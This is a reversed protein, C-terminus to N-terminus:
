NFLKSKEKEVEQKYLFKERTKLANWFEKNEDIETLNDMIEDFLLGWDKEGEAYVYAIQKLRGSDLLYTIKDASLKKMRDYIQIAYQIPMGVKELSKYYNTIYQEAQFSKSARQKLSEIQVKIALEGKIRITTNGVKRTIGNKMIDEYDLRKFMTKIVSEDTVGRALKFAQEHMLRNKLQRKYYNFQQRLTGSKGSGGKRTYSM